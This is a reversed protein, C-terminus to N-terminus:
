FNEWWFTSDAPAGWENAGMDKRRGFNNPDPADIPGQHDDFDYFTSTDAQECRDLCPSNASAPNPAILGKLKLFEHLNAPARWMVDDFRYHGTHEVWLSVRTTTMSALDNVQILLQPALGRQARWVQFSAGDAIITLDYWTPPTTAVSDVLVPGFITSLGGAVVKKLTLSTPGVVLYEYNSANAWRFIARFTRGAQSDIERSYSLWLHKNESEDTTNDVYVESDNTLSKTHSLYGGSETWVPDQTTTPVWSGLGGGSFTDEFAVPPKFTTSVFLPDSSINGTGTFGDQINSYTLGPSNSIQGNGGPITNARLINNRFMGAPVNSDAIGGASGSSGTKRNGYITNQEIRMAYCDNIAGGSGTGCSNDYFINSLIRGDCADLAGGSFGADNKYFFNQVIVGNSYAIAGGGVDAHNVEFWNKRIIGDCDRLAGGSKALNGHGASGFRNGEILGDVNHIAGGIVLANGTTKNDIFVNYLIHADTGNGEIGGSNTSGNGKITFGILATDEKQNSSFTVARQGYGAQIITNAVKKPDNPYASRIVVDKGAPVIVPNYTGANVEVIDGDAAATVANQIGNAGPYEYGSGVTLIHADNYRDGDVAPGRYGRGRLYLHGTKTLWGDTISDHQWIAREQTAPNLALLLPDTPPDVSQYTHITGQLYLNPWTFDSPLGIDTIYDPDFRAVVTPTLPPLAGDTWVVEGSKGEAILNTSGLTVSETIRGDIFLDGGKNPTTSSPASTDPYYTLSILSRQKPGGVTVPPRNADTILSIWHRGRKADAVALGMDVLGYGTYYDRGTGAIEDFVADGDNDRNYILDHATLMMAFQVETHSLRPEVTLMLGAVGSTQPVASSTGSGTVWNNTLGAETLSAWTTNTPSPTANSPFVYKRGASPVVVDVAWGYNSAQQDELPENQDGEVFYARQAYPDSAGATIVESWSGPYIPRADLSRNSNSAYSSLVLGKARAYQVATHLLPDYTEFGLMLSGVQAGNDAAYRIALEARGIYFLDTTTYDTPNVDFTNVHYRIPMIKCSPCIGPIGTLDNTQASTVSATKTGHAQQSNFIPNTPYFDPFAINDGPPANAPPPATPDVGVFDWGSRDDIYGNLDDDVGNIPEVNSGNVVKIWQRGVLDPHGGISQGNGLLYGNGFGTYNLTIGNDLAAVVIKPLIPPVSDNDATNSWDGEYALQWGAAANIGSPVTIPLPPTPPATYPQWYWRKEGDPGWPDYTEDEPLQDPDDFADPDCGPVPPDPPESCNIYRYKPDNPELPSQMVQYLPAFNPAAHLVGPSGHYRNAITLADDGRTSAIDADIRIRYGIKGILSYDSTSIIDAADEAFMALVADRPTDASVVVSIYNTLLSDGSRSAGDRGVPKYVPHVAEVEGNSLLGLAVSSVSEATQRDTLKLVVSRGMYDDFERQEDGPPRLRSDFGVRQEIQRVTMGNRFTVGIKETSLDLDVREGNEGYFFPTQGRRNAATLPDQANAAGGCVAAIVGVWVIKRANM